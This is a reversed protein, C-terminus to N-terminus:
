FGNLKKAHKLEKINKNCHSIHKHLFNKSTFFQKCHRCKRFFKFSAVNRNKLKETEIETSQCILASDASKKNFILANKMNSIKSTTSTSFQHSSKFYSTIRIQYLRMHNEFTHATFLRKQIVVLSASKFKKHFM